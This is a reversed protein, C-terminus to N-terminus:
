QLAGFSALLKRRRLAPVRDVEQLAEAVTEPNTVTRDLTHKVASDWGCYIAALARLERVRAAREAEDCNDLLFGLDAHKPRLDIVEAGPFVAKAMRVEPSGEILKVVERFTWVEHEDEALSAADTDNRVLLIVRGDDLKTEWRDLPHHGAAIAEADLAAYGRAMAAARRAIETPDGTTVAAHFKAQQRRWRERQEDSVLLVLRGEGWKRDIEVSVRGLGRLTTYTDECDRDAPSMELHKRVRRQLDAFIIRSDTTM